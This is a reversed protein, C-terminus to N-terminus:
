NTYWARKLTPPPRPPSHHPLRTTPSRYVRLTFVKALYNKKVLDLALPVAISALMGLFGGYQAGGGLFWVGVWLFTLSLKKTSHSLARVGNYLKIEQLGYGNGFIKKLAKEAGFCLDATALAKVVPKILPRALSLM